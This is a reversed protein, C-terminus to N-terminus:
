PCESARVYTFTYTHTHTHTYIYIHIYIYIYIYIYTYSCENSSVCTCMYLHARVCVCARVCACVCVCVFYYFQICTYRQLEAANDTMQQQLKAREKQLMSQKQQLVGFFKKPAYMCVYICVDMFLPADFEPNM